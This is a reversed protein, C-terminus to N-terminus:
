RGAPADARLVAGEPVLGQTLFRWLAVMLKRALAVIAIRKVRGKQDGVRQKFWRSLASDPQYRLWLWSLEIALPRARSNGSKSIGQERSSQGSDFPTGTLGVYAGVQRRNQFDRWFVESVLKEGGIPGLSRLRLLRNVQTARDSPTAASREAQMQGEIEALQESVQALRGHERQIERVLNAPLARGDGSRAAALRELFDRRRPQLDRVGQGHLLGKIRNVHGTREGVLRDRERSLRRADEQEPSPPRVVSCVRPEGGDHRILVRMLRELDLRDTKAQRARRPMEISSPDLVRNAVGQETLWRHLWFGDYGAEYCSVVRVACGLKKEALGRKRSLLDWVAALDGGSVTHRSMKSEGSLVLGILWKSKSLEFAVYLTGDKGGAAPTDNLHSPMKNKRQLNPEELDL